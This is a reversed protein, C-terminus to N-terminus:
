FIYTRCVGSRHQGTTSSFAMFEHMIMCRQEHLWQEDMAHPFRVHAYQVHFSEYLFVIMPQDPFGNMLFFSLSVCAFVRTRNEM